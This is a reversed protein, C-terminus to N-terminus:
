TFHAFPMAGVVHLELCSELLEVDTSPFIKETCKGSERSIWSVGVQRAFLSVYMNIITRGDRDVRPLIETRVVKVAWLDGECIEKGSLDPIFLRLSRRNKRGSLISDRELRIPKFGLKGKHTHVELITPFTPVTENSKKKKGTGRLM